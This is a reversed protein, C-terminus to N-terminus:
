SSLPILNTTGSSATAIWSCCPSEVALSFRLRVPEYVHFVGAGRGLQDRLFGRYLTEVMAIAVADTQGERVLHEGDGL